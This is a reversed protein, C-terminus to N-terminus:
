TPRDAWLRHQLGSSREIPRALAAAVIGGPALVTVRESARTVGTYVLERTLLPSPREGLVVVAHRFQSGQSKHITMAFTPECAPLRTPSLTRVSGDPAWFAALVQRPDAPDPLLVGVDGNFLRVAPDNQTVLLPRGIPWRQDPRFGDVRRALAREIARNWAEVGDPGRRRACLVRVATLEGLVTAPDEGDLAAQVVGGYSDAVEELLGAAVRGQEDPELLRVRQADGGAPAGRRLEAVVQEADGSGMRQLTATVEALAEADEQRRNRDLRVIADWIGPEPAPTVAAQLDTGVLPRLATVSPASFRLVPRSGDPGCLDGFVAGAEVSALQDRDGLLILRADPRVADVLKAMLPLSVMSAEDVIVVDHPLPRRADHRFRTPSGPHVGLLRHITSAPTRAMAAHIGPALHLDELAERLSEQLRAAAKGTPATVAARLPPDEPATGAALHLLALVRAVTYTKGTGPGGAIVTLRRRLAVAAALRQRDLVEASGFLADLWDGVQTPAIAAGAAPEVSREQLAMALRREYTWYRDLYLRDGALVLPTARGAESAGEAAGEGHGEGERRVLPSASLRVAWAGPEPWPLDAPDALPGDGTPVDQGQVPEVAVTTAIRPLDVCVHGFRLGRLALATALLAAADDEGGIRGLRVALRVDADSLVGARHFAALLEPPKPGPRAPSLASM